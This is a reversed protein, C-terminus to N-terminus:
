VLRRCQCYAFYVAQVAGPKFCSLASNSNHWCAFFIFFTNPRWKLWNWFPRIMFDDDCFEIISKSWWTGIRTSDTLHGTVFPVFLSKILCKFLLLHVPFRSWLTSISYINCQDAFPMATASITPPFPRRNVGTIAKFHPLANYLQPCFGPTNGYQVSSQLCLTHLFLFSHTPKWPLLLHQNLCYCLYQSDGSQKSHCSHRAFHFNWLSQRICNKINVLFNVTVSWLNGSGPCKNRSESLSKVCTSFSTWFCWFMYVTSWYALIRMCECVLFLGNTVHMFPRNKLSFSKDTM